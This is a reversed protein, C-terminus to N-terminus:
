VVWDELGALLERLRGMARHLRSKVTGVPIGLEEAVEAQTKGQFYTLDVVARQDAPLGDM